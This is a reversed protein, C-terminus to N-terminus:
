KGLKLPADNLEGCSLFATVGELDELDERFSIQGGLLNVLRSVDPRMIHDWEADYLSMWIGANVWMLRDFM